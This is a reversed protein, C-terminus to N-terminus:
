NLHRRVIEMFMLWMCLETLGDVGKVQRAGVKVILSSHNANSYLEHLQMEHKKRKEEEGSWEMHDDSLLLM